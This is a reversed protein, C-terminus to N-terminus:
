CMHLVFLAGGRVQDLVDRLSGCDCLELVLRLELGHVIPPAPPRGTAQASGRETRDQLAMTTAAPSVYLSAGDSDMNTNNNADSNYAVATSSDGATRGDSPGTNSLVPRLDYMYTQPHVSLPPFTPLLPRALPFTM